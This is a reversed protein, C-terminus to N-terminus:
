IKFDAILVFCFLAFCLSVFRFLAFCLSVFRFLALVLLFLALVFCSCSRVVLCLLFLCSRVVLVFCSCLLFLAFEFYSCFRFIFTYFLWVKLHWVDYFL